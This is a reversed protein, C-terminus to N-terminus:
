KPLKPMDPFAPLRIDFKVDGGSRRLVQGDTAPIIDAQYPRAAYGIGARLNAAMQDLELLRREVSPSKACLECMLYAGSRFVYNKLLRDFQNITGCVCCRDVDIPKPDSLDISYFRATM